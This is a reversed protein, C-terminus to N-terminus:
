LLQCSFLTLLVCVGFKWLVSDKLLFFDTVISVAIHAMDEQRPLEYQEQNLVLLSILQRHEDSLRDLLVNDSAVNEEVSNTGSSTVLSQAPQFVNKVKAKSTRLDTKLRKKYQQQSNRATCQLDSLLGSVLYM